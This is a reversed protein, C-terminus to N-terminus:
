FNSLVGFVKQKNVTNSILLYKFICNVKFYHYYFWEM